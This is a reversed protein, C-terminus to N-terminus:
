QTQTKRRRARKVRPYVFLFVGTIAMTLMLVQQVKGAVPGLSGALSAQVVIIAAFLPLALWAHLKRTWKAISKWM